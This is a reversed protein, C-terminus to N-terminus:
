VRFGSTQVKINDKDFTELDSLFTSESRTEREPNDTQPKLNPNHPEPNPTRPEPNLTQPEPNL